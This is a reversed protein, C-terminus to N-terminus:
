DVAFSRMVPLDFLERVKVKIPVAMNRAAFEIHAGADHVGNLVIATGQMTMALGHSTRELAIVTQEEGRTFEITIGSGEPLSTVVSAGDTTVELDDGGPMEITGHMCTIPAHEM